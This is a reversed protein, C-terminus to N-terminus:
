FILKIVSDKEFDSAYDDNCNLLIENDKWPGGFDKLIYEATSQLKEFMVSLDCSTFFNKFMVFLDPDHEKM